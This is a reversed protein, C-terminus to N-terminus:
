ARGATPTARFSALEGEAAKTQAYGIVRTGQTKVKEAELVTATAPVVKGNAGASLLEGPKITAGAVVKVRGLVAYTGSQGQKPKDQLSFAVDGAAAKVLQGENNLKVLKYQWTSLDEAAIATDLDFEDIKQTAM